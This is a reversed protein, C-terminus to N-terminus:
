QYQSKGARCLGLAKDTGDDGAGVERLDIAVLHGAEVVGAEVATEGDHHGEVVAEVPEGGDLQKVGLLAAVLGGVAGVGGEAVRHRQQPMVLIEGHREVVFDFVLQVEVIHFHGHHEVVLVPSAAAGDPGTECPATQHAGVLYLVAPGGGGVQAGAHVGSVVPAHDGICLYPQPFSQLEVEAELIRENGEAGADVVGEHGVQLLHAFLVVVDDGHPEDVGEVLFEDRVGVVHPAAFFSRPPNM